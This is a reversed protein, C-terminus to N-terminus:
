VALTVDDCKVGDPQIPLAIVDATGVDAGAAKLIPKVVQADLADLVPRLAPLLLSNIIAKVAGNSSDATVLTGLGATTSGVHQGPAGFGSPYSFTLPTPGSPAANTSLNVDLVHLPSLLPLTVDLIAGASENVAGTTAEVTIGKNAGCDVATLNGVAKAATVTIPLAGTVKALPLNININPTVTLEVQSTQAHPTAASAPGVYIKPLEIVKLAVAVSGLNPISVALSPINVTNTGNAVAASGTVLRFVNLETALAADESGQAVTIMDGLKVTGASNAALAIGNLDAAVAPNGPGLASATANVLDRYSISTTLLKDVTGVNLGAAVLQQQLAGLSVNTAALGQYSVVNVPGSAQIWQGMFQNLVTKSPDLSALSSGISFSGKNVVTAVARTTITRSGSVFTNKIPSKITVEVASAGVGAHFVRNADLSGVVTTLSYGPKNWPFDNRDASAQALADTNGLDRAADLAALDAVRQDNRREQAIRGLDVALAAAIIALVIGVTAM